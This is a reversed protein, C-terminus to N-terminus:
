QFNLTVNTLNAGRFDINYAKKEEGTVVTSSTSVAIKGVEGSLKSESGTLLRAM